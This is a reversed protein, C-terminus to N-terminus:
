PKFAERKWCEFNYLVSPVDLDGGEAYTLDGEPSHGDAVLVLVAKIRGCEVNRRLEDVLELLSGAPERKPLEVVKVAEESAPVPGV